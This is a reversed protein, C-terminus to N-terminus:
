SNWLTRGFRNRLRHYTQRLGRVLNAGVSVGHVFPDFYSEVHGVHSPTEDRADLIIKSGITHETCVM